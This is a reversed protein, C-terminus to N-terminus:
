LREYLDKYLENNEIEPNKEKIKELIKKLEENFVSIAFDQSNERGFCNWKLLLLLEEPHEFIHPLRGKENHKKLFFVLTQDKFLMKM